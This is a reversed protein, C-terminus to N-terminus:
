ASFIYREVQPLAKLLLNVEVIEYHVLYLLILQTESFLNHKKETFSVCREKKASIERHRVQGARSLGGDQLLQSRLFKQQFSNVGGREVDEANTLNSLCKVSKYFCVCSRFHKFIMQHCVLKSLFLSYFNRNQIKALKCTWGTPSYIQLPRRKPATKKTPGGWNKKKRHLSVTSLPRPSLYSLQLFTHAEEL